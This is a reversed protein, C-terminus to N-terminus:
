VLWCFAGILALATGLGWLGAQILVPRLDRAFDPPSNSNERRENLRRALEADLEDAGPRARSRIQM